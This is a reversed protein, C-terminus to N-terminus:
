GFSRDSRPVPQTVHENSVKLARVLTWRCYLGQLGDPLLMILTEPVVHFTETINPISDRIDLVDLDDIGKVIPDAVDFSNLLNDHLLWLRYDIQECDGIYTYLSRLSLCSEQLGVSEQIPLLHWRWCHRHWLIGTSAFM